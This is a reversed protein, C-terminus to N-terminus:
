QRVALIQLTVHESDASYSVQHPAVSPVIPGKQPSARRSTDGGRKGEEESLRWKSEHVVGWSLMDSKWTWSGCGDGEFM